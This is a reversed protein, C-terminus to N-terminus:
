ISLQSLLLFDIAEQTTTLKQKLNLNDQELIAIKEEPTLPKPQSDLEEQVLRNAERQIIEETTFSIEIVGNKTIVLKDAM